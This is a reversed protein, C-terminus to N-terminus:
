GLPVHGLSGGLGVWGWDPPVCALGLGLPNPNPHYFHIPPLCCGRGEHSPYYHMPPRVGQASAQGVVGDGGNRVVM